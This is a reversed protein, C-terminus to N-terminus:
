VTMPQGQGEKVRCPNYQVYAVINPNTSFHLRGALRVDQQLRKREREDRAAISLAKHDSSTFDRFSQLYILVSIRACVFQCKGVCEHRLATLCSNISGRAINVPKHRPELFKALQYYPALPLLM